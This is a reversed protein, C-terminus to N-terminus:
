AFGPTQGEAYASGDELCESVVGESLLTRLDRRRVGALSESAALFDLAESDLGPM